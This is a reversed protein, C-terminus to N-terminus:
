HRPVPFKSWLGNRLALPSRWFRKRVLHELFADGLMPDVIRRQREELTLSETKAVSRRWLDDRTSCAIRESVVGLHRWWTRRTYRDPSFFSRLAFGRLYKESSHKMDKRSIQMRGDSLAISALNWDHYFMDKAVAGASSLQDYLVSGKQAVVDATYHFDCVLGDADSGSSYSREREAPTMFLGFLFIGNRRLTQYVDRYMESASAARVGKRHAALWQEDLTEIGMLGFRMGARSALEAFGKNRRVTDGRIFCGFRLGFNRRIMGELVQETIRHDQAFNDDTFIFERVGLRHLREMEDLVREPSKYRQKYDWFRNINCFDCRHPCGRSMEISACSGNRVLGLHYPALPFRE